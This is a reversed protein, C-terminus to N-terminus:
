SKIQASEFKVKYFLPNHKIWAAVGSGGVLPATDFMDFVVL